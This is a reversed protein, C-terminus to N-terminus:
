PTAARNEPNSQNILYFVTSPLEFAAIKITAELKGLVKTNGTQDFGDWVFTNDGADQPRWNYTRFLGGNQLGIRIRVMSYKPLFYSIKGSSRDFEPDKVMVFNGWPNQFSHFRILEGTTFNGSINVYYLGTSLGKSISDSHLKVEHWGKARDKGTEFAIEEGGYINIFKITTKASAPLAPLVQLHHQRQCEYRPLKQLPHHQTQYWFM